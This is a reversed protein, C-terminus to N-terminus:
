PAPQVSRIAFKVKQLGEVGDLSLGAISRQVNGTGIGTGCSRRIGRFLRPYGAAFYATREHEHEDAHELIRTVEGDRQQFSITRYSEPRNRRMIGASRARARRRARARNELKPIQSSDTLAARM